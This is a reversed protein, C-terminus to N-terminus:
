PDHIWSQAWCYQQATSTDAKPFWPFQNQFISSQHDWRLEWENPDRQEKLATVTLETVKFKTQQGASFHNSLDKKM